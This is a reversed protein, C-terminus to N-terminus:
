RKEYFTRKIGEKLTIKPRWGPIRQGKTWPIMVERPRYPRQGWAIPLRIKTTKEFLEALQKLTLREDAMIAFSQGVMTRDKDDALLQVLQCYGDIVNDIYSIDILQEGASMALEEQTQSIKAWLNFVKPRIDSPGFTDCLKITVFNIPSTEYYYQAMAEFTQKSAAYLNVPSYEKDEYHQWFTGTNIFWPVHSLVAAELLTTAFLVNSDILDKIDEPKHQALFRSALHIVGDFHHTQMFSILNTITGDFIFFKIKHKEFYDLNATPRILAYIDHNEQTLRQALHQGVFGTTGSM